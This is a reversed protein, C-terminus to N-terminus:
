KCVEKAALIETADNVTATTGDKYMIDVPYNLIRKETVDPNAIHWERILKFDARENVTIVTADPMTFSVPLVLKFCKRKDKDARCSKKVEKLEDINLLTEITGDELTIDLPFVLEPRETADINAEYWERILVWDAKETLTITSNDPMFFTVPFVFRVCKHRRKKSKERTDTLQRGEVTFFVTTQAEEREENDSFISVKYGLGTALEASEVFSDSLDGNFAAATTSPLSSADVVVTRASEIQTILTADDAITESTDSESCSTFLLATITFFLVSSKLM